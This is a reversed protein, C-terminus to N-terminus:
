CLFKLVTLIIGKGNLIGNKVSITGREFVKKNLFPVGKWMGQEASQM